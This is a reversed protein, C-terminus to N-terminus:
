KYYLQLITEYSEQFYKRRKHVSLLRTTSHEQHLVKLKPEFFIPYNHRLAFESIHIEEGYLFNYKLTNFKLFDVDYFVYFSGHGSYVQAGVLLDVQEFLNRIVNKLRKLYNFLVWSLMTSSLCYRFKFFFKNPRSVLHPNQSKGSCNIIRPVIICNKYFFNDIIDINEVVIDSNSFIVQRYKLVYEIAYQFGGLYGINDPPVILKEDFHVVYNRSNDVVYFDFKSHHANILKFIDDNNNYNILIWASKMM